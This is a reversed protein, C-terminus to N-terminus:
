CHTSNSSPPMPSDAGRKGLLMTMQSIYAIASFVAGVVFPVYLTSTLLGDSLGNGGIVGGSFYQVYYLDVALLSVPVCVLTMMLSAVFRKQLDLFPKPYVNLAASVGSTLLAFLFPFGLVGGDVPRCLLFTLLFSVALALAFRKYSFCMHRVLLAACILGASLPIIAGFVDIGLSQSFLIAAYAPHTAFYDSIAGVAAIGLVAAVIGLLAVLIGKFYLKVDVKSPM